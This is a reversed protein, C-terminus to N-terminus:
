TATSPCSLHFAPFCTASSARRACVPDVAAGSGPLAARVGGSGSSAAEQETGHAEGGDSGPPEAMPPASPAVLPAGSCRLVLKCAGRGGTLDRRVAAPPHFHRTVVHVHKCGGQRFVVAATLAWQGANDLVGEEPQTQEGRHARPALIRRPDPVMRWTPGAPMPFRAPPAQRPRLSPTKGWQAEGLGGCRCTYATVHKAARAVHRKAKPISSDPKWKRADTRHAAPLAHRRPM